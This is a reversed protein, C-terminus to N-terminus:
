SCMSLPARHEPTLSTVLAPFSSVHALQVISYRQDRSGPTPNSTRNSQCVGFPALSARAARVATIQFLRRLFRLGQPSWRYQALPHRRGLAPPPCPAGYWQATKRGNVNQDVIRPHCPRHAGQLFSMVAHICVM